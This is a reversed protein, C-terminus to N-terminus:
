MWFRFSSFSPMECLLLSELPVMKLNGVSYNMADGSQESTEEILSLSGTHRGRKQNRSISNRATWIWASVLHPEGTALHPVHKPDSEGFGFSPDNNCYRLRSLYLECEGPVPVHFVWSRCDGTIEREFSMINQNRKSSGKLGVSRFDFQPWDKFM